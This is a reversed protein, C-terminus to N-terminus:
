HLPDGWVDSIGKSCYLLGELIHKYWDEELAYSLSGRPPPTVRRVTFCAPIARESGFFVAGSFQVADKTIM